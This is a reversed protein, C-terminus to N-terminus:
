SSDPSKNPLVAGKSGLMIDKLEEVTKRMKKFKSEVKKDLEAFKEDFEEKM